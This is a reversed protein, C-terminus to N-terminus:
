ICADDADPGHGHNDLCKGDSGLYRIQFSGCVECGHNVIDGALTCLTGANAGNSNQLFACIYSDCAIQQENNYFNSPNISCILNELTKANGGHDSCGVSGRCNPDLEPTPRNVTTNASMEMVSGVVGQLTGTAVLLVAAPIFRM